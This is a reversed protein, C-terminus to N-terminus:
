FNTAEKKLKLFHGILEVFLKLRSFPHPHEDDKPNYIFKKDM